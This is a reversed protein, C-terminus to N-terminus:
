DSWFRVTYLFCWYLALFLALAVDYNQMYIEFTTVSSILILNILLIINEHKTM